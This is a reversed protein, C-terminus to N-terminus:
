PILFIFLIFPALIILPIIKIKLYWAALPSLILFIGLVIIGFISLRKLSSEFLYKIEEFKNKAKFNSTFNAIGTQITTLPVNFIYIISLIVGVVGYEAPGLFRGAFFHFLFVLAGTIFNSIFLILNDKVLDSKKYKSLYKKLM